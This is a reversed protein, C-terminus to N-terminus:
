RVSRRGGTALDGFGIAGPFSVLQASALQVCGITLLGISFLTLLSRKIRSRIAGTSFL